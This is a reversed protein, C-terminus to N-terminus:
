RLWTEAFAGDRFALPFFALSQGYYNRLFDASKRQGDFLSELSKPVDAGSSQFAFLAMATMALSRSSDKIGGDYTYVAAPQTHGEAVMSTFLLLPGRLMFRRAEDRRNLLADLGARMPLRLSEWGYDASRDKAPALGGTEQIVCWDPPLGVGPREGLRTGSTGWLRYASAALDQWRLDGTTDSLMRFAAPSFYSPNVIMEGDDSKGWTGPMLVRGFHPLDRTEGALIDKAVAKAENLYTRDRWRRHALALAMAHDVDADSAANWDAVKGDQWHWALLRDGHKERRSLYKQTWQRVTEFTEQDDLMVAFIMAYAQGESVTDNKHEPRVVRGDPRIFTKKYHAWWTELQTRPRDTEPANPQTNVCSSACLFWVGAVVGLLTALMVAYRRQM